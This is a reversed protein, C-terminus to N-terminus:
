RNLVMDKGLFQLEHDCLNQACSDPTTYLQRTSHGNVATHQFQASAIHEEVVFYMPVYGVRGSSWVVSLLAGQDFSPQFAIHHPIEGVEGKVFGSPLLQLVPHRATKFIIIFPSIKEDPGRCLVALRESTKNWVMQQVFGGIRVDEGSQSTLIVDSLDAVAVAMPASGMSGSKVQATTDDKLMFDHQLTGFKICYLVPDAEMAFLLMKGDCSWCAAICRGSLQSWVECNWSTTEWVRFMSSLTASLVKSGDPSWSLLSIGGGGFRRLPTCAETPVSWVMIATDTPSSSLLLKGSPDWALHTVPVHGPQKLVQALSTSPMDMSNEQEGEEKSEVIEEFSSTLGQDYWAHLAKQWVTKEQPIFASKVNERCSAIRAQDRSVRIDPYNGLLPEAMNSSVYKMEGNKEMVTVYESSPPSRCIELLGSM